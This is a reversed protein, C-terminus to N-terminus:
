REGEPRKRREGEPRVKREGEPRKRREGEPRVKREGEPRKRREGEPRKRREGEPRVKREGEPRKRREGEPRKRREGEPRKRREGEPRVKREGEPRKRKPEVEENMQKTQESDDIENSQGTEDAIQTTEELQKQENETESEIEELENAEVEIATEKVSNAALLPDTKANKSLFKKDLVIVIIGCLIGIIAGVIVDSPWHQNLYLRSYGVLVSFILAVIGAKKNMYYVITAGAFVASVHGSPMSGSQSCMVLVREAYLTNCPRLRDILPKLIVGTILFNIASAAIIYFGYKRFNQFLLLILALVLFIIGNDSLDSILIMVKDFFENHYSLITELISSDFKNEWVNPVTAVLFQSLIM